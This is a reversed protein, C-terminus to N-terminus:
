EDVGTVVFVCECESAICTSFLTAMMVPAEEPVDRM